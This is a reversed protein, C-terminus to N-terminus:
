RVTVVLRMGIMVILSHFLLHLCEFQASETGIYAAFLPLLGALFIFEEQLVALLDPHLVEKRRVGPLLIVAATTYM